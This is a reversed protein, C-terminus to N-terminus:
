YSLNKPTKIEPSDRKYLFTFFIISSWILIFLLWLWKGQIGILSPEKKIKTKLKFNNWENFSKNHITKLELTHPNWTHKIIEFHFISKEKLEKGKISTSIKYWDIETTINYYNDENTIEEKKIELNFIWKDSTVYAYNDWNFLYNIAKNPIPSWTNDKYEGRFVVYDWNIYWEYDIGIRKKWFDPNKKYFELIEKPTKNSLDIDWSYWYTNQFWILMLLIVLSITKNM